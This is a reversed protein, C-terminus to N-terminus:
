ELVSISAYACNHLEMFSVIDPKVIDIMAQMNEVDLQHIFVSKLFSEVIWPLLPIWTFSDGITLIRPSSEDSNMYYCYSQWMDSSSYNNDTFWKQYQETNQVKPRYEFDEESYVRM